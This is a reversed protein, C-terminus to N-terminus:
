AYLTNEFIHTEEGTVWCNKGDAVKGSSGPLCALNVARNIQAPKRLKLMAIDHAYGYPQKYSQHSIIREVEMDQETGVNSTRFHAGLRCSM